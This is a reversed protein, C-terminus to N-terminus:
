QQAPLPGAASLVSAMMHGLWWSEKGAALVLVPLPQLVTSAIVERYGVM